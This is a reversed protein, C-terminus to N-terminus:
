IVYQIKMFLCEWLKVNSIKFKLNQPKNLFFKWHLVALRYSDAAITFTKLWWTAKATCIASYPPPYGHCSENEIIIFTLTIDPTRL